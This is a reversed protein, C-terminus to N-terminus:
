RGPSPLPPLGYLDLTTAGSRLASIIEDERGQRAVSAAVVDDLRDFPLAIVGDGDGVVVDGPRVVVDGLALPVNISGAGDPHKSTGRMCFGRGFVPLGIAPLRDSDRVCGDIVLGALGRARAAQSLVEGWYGAEYHHGPEVVLVDGPGAAYVAHHLWLNDAPPGTVTVARGALVLGPTLCRIVSPLAGIKGAAEHLTSTGLAAARAIRRGMHEDTGLETTEYTM